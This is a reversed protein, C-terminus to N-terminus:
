HSKLTNLLPDEYSDMHASNSGIMKYILIDVCYSTVHGFDILLVLCLPSKFGCQKNGSDM